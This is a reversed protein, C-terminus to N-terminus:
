RLCTPYTTLQAAIASPTRHQERRVKDSRKVLIPANGGRHCLTCLPLPTKGELVSAPLKTLDILKSEDDSRSCCSCVHEFETRGRLGGYNYYDKEMIDRCSIQERHYFKDKLKATGVGVDDQEVDDPFLTDGCRYDITELYNDLDSLMKNSAM